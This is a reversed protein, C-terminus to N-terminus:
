NIKDQLPIYRKWIYHYDVNNDFINTCIVFVNEQGEDVAIKNKQRQRGCRKEEQIDWTLFNKMCEESKLWDYVKNEIGPTYKQWSFLYPSNSDITCIIKTDELDIVKNYETKKNCIGGEIYGTKVPGSYVVNNKNYLIDKELYPKKINILNLIGIILVLVLIIILVIYYKNKM